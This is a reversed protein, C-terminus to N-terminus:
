GHADMQYVVKRVGKIEVTKTKNIITYPLTAPTNANIEIIHEAQGAVQGMTEIKGRHMLWECSQIDKDM